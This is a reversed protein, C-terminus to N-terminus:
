LLHTFTNLGLDCRDLGVHSSREEVRFVAEVVLFLMLLAICVISLFDYLVLYADGFEFLFHSLLLFLDSTFFFALVVLWDENRDSVGWYLWDRFRYVVILFAFSRRLFLEFIELGIDTM